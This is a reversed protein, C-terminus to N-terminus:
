FPDKTPYKTMDRPTFNGFSSNVSDQFTLGPTSPNITSGISSASGTTGGGFFGEGGGSFLGGAISSLGSTIGGFIGSQKAADGQARMSDAGIKAMELMANAEIDAKGVLADAKTATIRQEANAKQGAQATDGFDLKSHLFSAVQPSGAFRM